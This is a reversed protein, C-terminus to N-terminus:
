APDVCLTHSTRALGSANWNNSGVIGSVNAVFAGDISLRVNGAINQYWIVSATTTTLPDGDWASILNSIVVATIPPSPPSPLTTCPM